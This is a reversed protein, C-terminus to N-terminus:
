ISEMKLSIFPMFALQRVGQQNFIDYYFLNDRNILNIAGAQVRAKVASLDFAQEISIDLRHFDPLRGDFPKDILLRPEGYEGTVDPLHEEFRFFSDFGLPRTYPLGSGYNFSINATFNDYEIGFRANLQHRRDHPPHYQQIPEGFWRSFHDQATEYRTFSYGYGISTYIHRHDFNLRVDAGYVTGGAYALDTSFEAIQNWTSVPKNKIIKYYGEIVYDLYQGISQQWGLLAHRAEMRRDPDPMPLWATFANGADRFDAVGLLPQHYIGIAAHLEEEEKGRPQWSFKLRPEISPQFRNIYSTLSVGPNLAINQHLPIDISFYGGSALLTERGQKIDAFLDSIDYNLFSFDAFIGYNLRLNGSNQTLNIDLQFKTVDSYRKPADIGGAENSFSSVGVQVDAYSIFTGESVGACRGGVVFNNWKVYDSDEFNVKGRDYTRMMHASCPGDDGLDTFKILQSNFRLPQQEDLYIGSSGEILSGRGSVLLSSKGEVLPTELFLESIFPSITASWKQNYLNGNKLRIDMVSSTRGSYEPGFGGAYLDVTSIVDEPFASFFGLIHFPQYIQIGDVLVLNESPTGGRIFLNGGRDGTAVVGPQSQLVGALDGSGGPTPTRGLEVADISTQGAEVSRSKEVQVTIEELGEVQPTLRIHHAIRKNNQKLALTDSYSEYGVYSVKLIYEGPELRAFEYLGNRDTTKGKVQDNGTKQLTVNAMELANGTQQDIVTGRLIVNQAHSTQCFASILLCCFFATIKQKM